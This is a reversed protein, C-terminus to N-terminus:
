NTKYEYYQANPITKPNDEAPYSGSRIYLRKGEAIAKKTEETYEWKLSQKYKELQKSSMAAVRKRTELTNKHGYFEPDLNPNDYFIKGDETQIGDDPFYPCELFCQSISCKQGDTDHQYYDKKASQYRERDQKEQEETSTSLIRGGEGEESEEKEIDDLKKTLDNLKDKFSKNNLDV